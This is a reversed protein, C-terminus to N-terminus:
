EGDIMLPVRAAFLFISFMIQVFNASPKRTKTLIAIVEMVVARQYKSPLAMPSAYAQPTVLIDFLRVLNPAAQIM